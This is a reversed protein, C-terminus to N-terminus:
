TVFAQLLCGLPGCLSPVSAASQGSHGGPVKTKPSYCVSEDGAKLPGWEWSWPLPIGWGSRAPPCVSEGGKWLFQCPLTIHGLSRWVRPTRTNTHSNRSAVKKQRVSGPLIPPRAAVPLGSLPWLRRPAPHPFISHSVPGQYRWRLVQILGYRSGIHEWLRLIM